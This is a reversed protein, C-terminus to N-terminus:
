SPELRVEQRGLSGRPLGLDAEPRAEQTDLVTEPHAEQRWAPRPRRLHDTQDVQM